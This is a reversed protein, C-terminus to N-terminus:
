ISAEVFKKGETHLLNLAILEPLNNWNADNLLVDSELGSNKVIGVKSGLALALRYEFASIPGGNIGLLKVKSPSIGSSIMDIWYQLPELPSFNDNQTLRIENYRNDILSNKAQPVYGITQLDQPYKEQVEGILGSIGSVTGGSIITGQFGNFTSLVFDKYTRMEAEVDSNCGGAVIVIPERFPGKSVSALNRIQEFAAKGAGSKSFKAALGILLLRRVWEYGLLGRSSLSDITKLAFELDQQKFSVQLAKSYYKLSEYPEGSLLNAKGCEFFLLPLNDGM